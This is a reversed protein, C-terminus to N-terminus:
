WRSRQFQRFWPKQKPQKRPRLPEAVPPMVAFLYTGPSAFVTTSGVVLAAQAADKFAQTCDYISTGAVIAAREEPPIYDM